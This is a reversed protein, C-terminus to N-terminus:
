GVRSLARSVVLEAVCAHVAHPAAAPGTEVRAIRETVDEAVHEAVDEAAPAAAPRLHEAAGVQAVLELEVELLGHEAVGRADIELDSSCVDSSWDRSFRT